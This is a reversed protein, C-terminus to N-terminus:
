DTGFQCSRCCNRSFVHPSQGLAVDRKCSMRFKRAIRFDDTSLNEFIKGSNTKMEKFKDFDRGSRVGCWDTAKALELTSLNVVFEGTKKILDYSYREPRVSISCMPPKTCITGGWSVTIINIGLEDNGCSIMLAPLPYIM